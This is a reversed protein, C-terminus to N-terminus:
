NKCAAEILAMVLLSSKKGSPATLVGAIGPDTSHVQLFVPNHNWSMHVDLWISCSTVLERENHLIM